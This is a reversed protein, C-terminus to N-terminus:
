DRNSSGTIQRSQRANTRQIHQRQSGLVSQVFHGGERWGVGVGREMVTQLPLLQKSHSNPTYSTRADCSIKRADFQKGSKRAKMKEGKQDHIEPSMSAKPLPKSISCLAGADRIDSPLPPPDALPFTLLVATATSSKDNQTVVYTAITSCLQLGQHMEQPSCRVRPLSRKIITVNFPAAVSHSTKPVMTALMGAQM